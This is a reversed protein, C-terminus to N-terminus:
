GTRAFNAWYTIVIESLLMEARTYNSSLHNTGGVLPMGFVYALEEGHISGWNQMTPLNRITSVYVGPFVLQPISYTPTLKDAQIANCCWMEM